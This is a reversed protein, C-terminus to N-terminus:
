VGIPSGSTELCSPMPTKSISLVQLVAPDDYFAQLRQPTDAAFDGYSYYANQNFVVRALAGLNLGRFARLEVGLYTEPLM